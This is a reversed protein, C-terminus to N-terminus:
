QPAAAGPGRGGGPGIGKSQERMCQRHAPGSKDKCAERAGQMAECRAPDPSKACDPPPMQNAVCKRREAGQKDQCAARAAKRAECREPSPAKSCDVIKENGGAPAPQAFVATALTGAIVLGLLQSCSPTRM